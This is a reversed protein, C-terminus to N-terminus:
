LSWGASYDPGDSAAGADVCVLALADCLHAARTAHYDETECAQYGYSDCAARMTSVNDLAAPDVSAPDFAMGRAEARFERVASANHAYRALVSRLNESRLLRFAAAEGGAQIRGHRAAFAVMTSLHRSSHMFASM